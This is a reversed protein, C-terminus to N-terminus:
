NLRPPFFNSEVNPLEGFFKEELNELWFVKEFEEKYDDNFFFVIEKQFPNLLERVLSFVWTVYAPVGVVYTKYGRNKNHLSYHTIVQILAVLPYKLIPLGQANM